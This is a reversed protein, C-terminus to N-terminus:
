RAWLKDATFQLLPLPSRTAELEDLIREVMAPSEFRHDCAEVPRILAERLGGRDLPPLFTLGHSVTDLFARNEVMRDLFDSRVALIVRLPSTTDDAVAGLCALVCAREESDAGLTYLEEFQDVCLALRRLRARAWTRLAIGLYGPEARLRTVIADCEAPVDAASRPHQESAHGPLALLVEALAALPRRGPRMVIAEWGEGSRKLAPIVGARVLSSKGAGSPGTVAVLPVSRLKGVLSIIEHDRGFFRDADPEQFAALGAFPNGDGDRARARQAPLLAELQQLLERAAATRHTRDKLLCRDIVDALPGLDRRHERVSPMPTELDDLMELKRLSLPALPHAGTVLEYLMIGVAWIDSRHDVLEGAIQEPSMYPLTGMRAGLGTLNLPAGSVGAEQAISDRMAGIKAVGFDLVKTVGEDTLLINAPKLDRHIIGMDHARVLARVVPVLMEVARTPALPAPMQALSGSSDRVDFAGGLGADMWQRLTQGRLYEFVLYPQGDHVGVEHIVVINEHRCRATARAEALFREQAHDPRTLMKIAVLRGLRLDRGLHVVGMGGRGLERILEYHQIYRADPSGSVPSPVPDAAPVPDTSAGPDIPDAPPADGTGIEAWESTSRSEAPASPLTDTSSGPGHVDASRM